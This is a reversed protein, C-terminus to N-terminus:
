GTIRMLSMLLNKIRENEAFLVPEKLTKELTKVVSVSTPGPFKLNKKKLYLFFFIKDM